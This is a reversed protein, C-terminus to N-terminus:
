AASSHAYRVSEFRLPAASRRMLRLSPRYRCARPARPGSGTPEKSLATGDSSPKIPRSGQGHSGPDRPFGALLPHRTVSGRYGKDVQRPPRSSRVVLALTRRSRCVRDDVDAKDVVEVSLAVRFSELAAGHADIRAIGQRMRDIV